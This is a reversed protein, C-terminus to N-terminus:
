TPAPTGGLRFPLEELSASRPSVSQPCGWLGVLSGAFLLRLSRQRGGAMRSLVKSVATGKEHYGHPERRAQERVLLLAVGLVSAIRERIRDSLSKSIGTLLLAVELRRRQTSWWCEPAGGRSDRAWAVRERADLAAQFLGREFSRLGRPSKNEEDLVVSGEPSLALVPVRQYPAYGPPYLTFHQSHTRCVLM